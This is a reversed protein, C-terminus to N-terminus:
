QYSSIIINVTIHDILYRKWIYEGNTKTSNLWSSIIQKATIEYIKTDKVNKNQEEQNM